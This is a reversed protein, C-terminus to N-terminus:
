SPLPWPLAPGASPSHHASYSSRDGLELSPAVINGVVPIVFLDGLDWTSSGTPERWGGLVPNVSKPTGRHQARRWHTFAAVAPPSLWIANVVRLHELRGEARGSRRHRAHSARRRM